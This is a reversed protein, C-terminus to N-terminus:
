DNFFVIIAVASLILIISLVRYMNMGGSPQYSVSTEEETSYKKRNYAMLRISLMLLGFVLLLAGIMTLTSM